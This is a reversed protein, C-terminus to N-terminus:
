KGILSSHYKQPQFAKMTYVRASLRTKRLWDPLNETFYKQDYGLCIVNPKNKKIVQYPDSLSGLIVKDVLKSKQLIKLREKESFNPLHGKIKEVNEDRAIVAILEDGPERAQKLFSIHGLHLGDFTGFVMVKIM